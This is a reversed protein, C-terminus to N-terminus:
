IMLIMINGNKQDGSVGPNTYQRNAETRNAKLTGCCLNVSSGPQRNDCWVGKEEPRKDKVIDAEQGKSIRWDGNGAVNM